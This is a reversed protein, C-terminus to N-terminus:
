RYPHTGLHICLGLAGGRVKTPLPSSTWILRTWYYQGRLNNSNTPIVGINIKLVCFTTQTHVITQYKGVSHYAMVLCHLTTYFHSLICTAWHIADVKPFHLCRKQRSRMPELDNPLPSRELGLFM